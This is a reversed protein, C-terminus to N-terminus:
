AFAESILYKSWHKKNLFVLREYSKNNKYYKKRGDKFFISANKINHLKGNKYFRIDYDYDLYISSLKNKNIKDWYNSSFRDRYFKM